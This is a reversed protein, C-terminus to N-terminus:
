TPDPPNFSGPLPRPSRLVNLFHLKAAFSLDSQSAVSTVTEISPPTSVSASGFTNLVTGVARDVFFACQATGQTRSMQESMSELPSCHSRWKGSRNCRAILYADSPTRAPSVFRLVACPRASETREKGSRLRIM